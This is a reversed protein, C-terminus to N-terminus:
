SLSFTGRAQLPAAETFVSFRGFSLGALNLDSGHAVVVTGGFANEVLAMGSVSGQTYTGVGFRNVCFQGSINGANTTASLVHSVQGAPCQVPPSGVGTGPGPYTLTVLGNGAQVGDQMGTGNSTFGSGGGGGATDLGSAASGGGGFFGGGGGAQGRGGTGFVGPQGVVAGTGGAGPGNQTGGKGALSGGNPDVGDGGAVGGGTGGSAPKNGATQNGGGGGGGAVILGEVESAGGGGGGNERTGNGGGNFGGAAGNFADAGMGGVRVQLVAGPTVPITQTAEGGLGGKVDPAVGGGQAGRVDITLRTVGSPVTFSQTDGTFSFTCTVTTTGTCSPAAGAPPAASLLGVSAVGSGLAAAAGVVALRRMGFRGFSSM